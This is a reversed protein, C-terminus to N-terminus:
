QNLIILNLDIKVFSIEKVPHIYIFSFVAMVLDDYKCHKILIVAVTAWHMKKM